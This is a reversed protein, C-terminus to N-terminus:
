ERVKSEEQKVRRKGKVPIFNIWFEKRKPCFYELDWKGESKSFNRRRGVFEISKGDSYLHHGNVSAETIAHASEVSSSRNQLM